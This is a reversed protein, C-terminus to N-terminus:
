KGTAEKATYYEGCGQSAAAPRYNGLVLNGTPSNANRQEVLKRAKEEDSLPNGKPDSNL